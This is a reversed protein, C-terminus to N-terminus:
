YRMEISLSIQEEQPMYVGQFNEVLLIVLLCLLARVCVIIM